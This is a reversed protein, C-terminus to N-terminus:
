SVKSPHESRRGERRWPLRYPGHAAAITTLGAAGYATYLIGREFHGIRAKVQAYKQQEYTRTATSRGSGSRDNYDVNCTFGPRMPGPHSEGDAGLQLGPCEPAGYSAAGRLLTVFGWLLPLLFLVLLM